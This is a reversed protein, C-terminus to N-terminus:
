PTHFNKKRPPPSTDPPGPPPRSQRLHFVRFFCFFPLDSTTSVQLYILLRCLVKIHLEFGFAPFCPRYMDSFCLVTLRTCNCRKPSPYELLYLSSRYWYRLPLPICRPIQDPLGSQNVCILPLADIVLEPVSHHKRNHVYVAPHDSEAASHHAVALGFVQIRGFCRHKIFAPIQVAQIACPCGSLWIKKKTFAIHIHDRQVLCSKCIRHSRQTCRKGGSMGRQDFAIYLFDIQGIVAIFGSGPRSKPCDGYKFSAPIM